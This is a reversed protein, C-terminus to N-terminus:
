DSTNEFIQVPGQWNEDDVYVEAFNGGTYRDIVKRWFATAQQNEAIQAVQWHGPFRDFIRRAVEAGLGKRRYKRLIFFEAISRGEGRGPVPLHASVLVFGALRGYVRVLFAHRRPENWYYELPPYGYLGDESVDAGDFESFDYNYLELLNRLLPKQELAAETIEIAM